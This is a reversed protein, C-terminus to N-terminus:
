LLLVTNQAVFICGCSALVFFTLAITRFVCLATTHNNILDIFFLFRHSFKELRRLAITLSSRFTLDSRLTLSIIWHPSTVVAEHITLLQGWSSRRRVVHSYLFLPLYAMKPIVADVNRQWTAPEECSKKRVSKRRHIRSNSVYFWPLLPVLYAQHYRIPPM